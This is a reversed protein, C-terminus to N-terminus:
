LPASELFIYWTVIQKLMVINLMGDGILHSNRVNYIMIEARNMKM